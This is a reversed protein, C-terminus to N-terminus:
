TLPLFKRYTHEDLLHFDDFILHINSDSKVESIGFSYELMRYEDVSLLTNLINYAWDIACQIPFLLRKYQRQHEDSTDFLYRVTYGANVIDIDNLHLKIVDRLNIYMDTRTTYMSSLESLIEHIKSKVLEKQSMNGLWTDLRSNLENSENIIYRIVHNLKIGSNVNEEYADYELALRDLEFLNKLWMIIANADDATKAIDLCLDDTTLLKLPSYKKLAVYYGYSRKKSQWLDDIDCEVISEIKEGNKKKKKKYIFLDREEDYRIDKPYYGLLSKIGRASATNPNSKDGLSPFLSSIYILDPSNKGKCLRKLCKVLAQETYSILTHNPSNSDKSNVPYTSIKLKGAIILRKLLKFHMEQSEFLLFRNDCIQNFTVYLVTNEDSELRKMFNDLEIGCVDSLTRSNDDDIGKGMPIYKDKMNYQHASFGAYIVSDALNTYIKHKKM